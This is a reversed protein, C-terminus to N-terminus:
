ITELFTRFSLCKNQFKELHAERLRPAHEVMYQELKDLSDTFYQV